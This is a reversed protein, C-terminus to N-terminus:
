TSASHRPLLLETDLPSQVSLAAAMGGVLAIFLADQGGYVAQSGLLVAVALLSVWRGM